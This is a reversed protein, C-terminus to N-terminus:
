ELWMTWLNVSQDSRVVSGHLKERHARIMKKNYMYIYPADDVLIQNAQRYLEYREEFDTISRAKKVLEDFKKNSYGTFNFVEDTHHQRYYYQDADILGNWNCVYIDYNGAGEEQLWQSWELANIKSAIGIRALQQQVIQAASVTFPYHTTPMLEIEFGNPYGAEALLEKAREINRDYPQYDFHWPSCDPVPSQIPECMGYYAGQCIQGRDLAYAIARRVKVDDLPERETNVGLYDYSFQCATGVVVGENGKLQEYNQPAVRQVWDYAGSILGNMRAKNDPVPEIIVKDLHPLGEQWYHENRTLVIKTTGELKEIKFPGTGIPIRVRGNDNVSEKALIGTAQVFSLSQPLLGYPEPHTISVTYKDVVKIETAKPGVNSSYGCGIEPDLIRDYTWKVDEATMERGNSFKVGKRLHFTWTKGDESQEWSKALWPVLKGDDNYFTLTEIVNNLIQLSTMSSTMHPDLGAWETQFAVRATGGQKASAQESGINPYVELPNVKEAAVSIGFVFLLLLTISIFKKSM